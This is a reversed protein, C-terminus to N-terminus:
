KLTSFFRILTSHLEKKQAVAVVERITDQILKKGHPHEFYEKIKLRVIGCAANLAIKNAAKSWIEYEVNESFEAKLGGTTFHDAIIKAKAAAPGHKNISGIYMATDGNVNGVIEGPLLLTSAMMLVGHLIKESDFFTQLIETNRLGNQLTCVYTDAGFLAEAEELATQTFMGKVLVIVVDAMGAEKPDTVANMRVVELRQDLSFKLGLDNIKGMHEKNPDVLVVEQGAKSLFAGVLSGMAGAGLIAYKMNLWM